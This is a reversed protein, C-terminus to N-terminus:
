KGWRRMRFHTKHGYTALVAGSWSWVLRLILASQYPTLMDGSFKFDPLRFDGMGIISSELERSEQWEGFQSKLQSWAKKMM